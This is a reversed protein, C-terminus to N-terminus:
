DAASITSAHEPSVLHYTLRSPLEVHKQKREASHHDPSCRVKFAFGELGDTFGPLNQYRTGAKAVLALTTTAGTLDRSATKVGAAEGLQYQFAGSAVAALGRRSSPQASSQWSTVAQVNRRLASRCVMTFYNGTLSVLRCSHDRHETLGISPVSYATQEAIPSQSGAACPYFGPPTTLGKQSKAQQCCVNQFM